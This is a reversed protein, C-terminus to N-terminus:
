FNEAINKFFDVRFYSTQEMFRCAFIIINMFESFNFVSGCEIIVLTLFRFSRKSASLFSQSHRGNLIKHLSLKGTFIFFTIRTSRQVWEIKGFIMKKTVSIWFLFQNILVNQFFFLYVFCFLWFLHRTSAVINLPSIFSALVVVWSTHRCWFFFRFTM